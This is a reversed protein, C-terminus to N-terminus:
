IFLPSVLDVYLCGLSARLAHSANSGHMVHMFGCENKEDPFSNSGRKCMVRKGM